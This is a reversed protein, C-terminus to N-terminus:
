NGGRRDGPPMMPMPMQPQTPQTPQTAGGLSILALRAAYEPSQQMQAIEEESYGVERWAQEVPISLKDRKLAVSKVHVEEDRTEAPEWECAILAAEDLTPGPGFTNHLRRALALVDEWGNGLLAQRKRCKNILPENQQKLTGEAAVQATAIFRSPPTDTAMAAWLIFQNIPALLNQLDAGEIAGFSAESAPRTTGVIQGPQLKWWNSKDPKPAAGDTTPIFGLAYFIRFATEDSASMLDILLKNIGNQLPIADWAECRMGQNRLHVLPIGLPQGNRDRWPIPWPEAPDDTIPQWDGGMVYKEVRDPYYVTMRRRARRQGRERYEQTWIKTAREMPQGPDDDPYHARCGWGAGAEGGSYTLRQRLTMMATGHEDELDVDIYRPHVALRPIRRANDWSVLVFAEGDRIAGEHADDQGVDMRNAQWVTWSWASMDADACSFRRVLLRETVAAVVTRCINLRLCDADQAGPVDRLFERLRETLRVFQRGDHYNRARVIARQRAQEDLSRSMLYALDAVNVDLTSRPLM